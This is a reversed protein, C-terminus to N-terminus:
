LTRAEAAGATEAAPAVQRLGGPRILQEEGAMLDAVLQQALTLTKKVAQDALDRDGIESAYSATVLGQVLTDNIRIAERQRVVREKLRAAADEAREREIEAHRWSRMAALAAGTIFLGHIAAWLLPNNMAATHNYVSDSDIIGVTGHHVVVYGMALGFPVWDQYLTVVGVMIFFHFHAEILGGSLHVLLASATVLGLTAAMSRVRRSLRAMSAMAFVAIAAIELVVHRPDYGRVLAFATLGVVHAWQLIVVSNHRTQWAEEDLPRGTPLWAPRRPLATM